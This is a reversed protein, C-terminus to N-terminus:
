QYSRRFQDPTKGTEKRFFRNFYSHDLFNLRDAVQAVSLDTHVLLRKAELVLREQIIKQLPKGLATQCISYLQKESLAMMDAYDRVTKHAVFNKEVLRELQRIQSQVHSSRQPPQSALCFGSLKVLLVNLYSRIVDDRHYGSGTYERHVLTFVGGIDASELDTLQVVPPTALAHFLPLDSLKRAPYDVLYFAPNFFILYGDTDESFTWNHVQAPSMFFANGPQIPYDVFDITHTGQGKTFLVLMYFDHRHPTRVFQYQAVHEAFLQVYVDPHHTHTREFDDLQLIPLSKEKM